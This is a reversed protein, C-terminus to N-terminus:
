NKKPEISKFTRCLSKQTNGLDRVARGRVNHSECVICKASPKERKGALETRM